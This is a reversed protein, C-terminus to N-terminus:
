RKKHKEKFIHHTERNLRDWDPKNFSLLQSGLNEILKLLRECREDCYSLAPKANSRLVHPTKSEEEEEVFNWYHMKSKNQACPRFENLFNRKSDQEKGVEMPTKMKEQEGQNKDQKGGTEKTQQM